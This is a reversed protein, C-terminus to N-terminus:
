PHRAHDIVDDGVMLPSFYDEFTDNAYNKRSPFIRELFVGWPASAAHM